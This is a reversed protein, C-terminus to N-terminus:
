SENQRGADTAAGARVKRVLFRGAVRQRRIEAIAQQELESASQGAACPTYAGNVTVGDFGNENDPAIIRRIIIPADSKGRRQELYGVRTKLSSNSAM